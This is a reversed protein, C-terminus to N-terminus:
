VRNINTEKDSPSPPPPPRMLSGKMGLSALFKVFLAMQPTKFMTLPPGLDPSTQMKQQSQSETAVQWAPICACAELGRVHGLKTMQWELGIM